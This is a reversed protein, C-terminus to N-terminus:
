HRVPLDGILLATTVIVCMATVFVGFALLAGHGALLVFVIAMIFTTLVALLFMESMYDM